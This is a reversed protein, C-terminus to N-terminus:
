QFIAINNSVDSAIRRTAVGAGSWSPLLDGIRVEPSAIFAAVAKWVAAGIQAAGSPGFVGTNYGVTMTMSGRKFFVNAELACVDAVDDARLDIPDTTTGSLEWDCENPLDIFNFGLMPLAPMATPDILLSTLASVDCNAHAQLVKQEMHGLFEGLTLDRRVRAAIVTLNTYM